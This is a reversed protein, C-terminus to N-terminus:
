CGGSLAWSYSCNSRVPRQMAHASLGSSMSPTMICFMVKCRAIAPRNHAQLNTRNDKFMGACSLLSRIKNFLRGNCSSGMLSLCTLQVYLLASCYGCHDPCIDSHVYKYALLEPM